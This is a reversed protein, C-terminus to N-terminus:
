IWSLSGVAPGEVQWEVIQAFLSTSLSSRRPFPWTEQLVDVPLACEIKQPEDLAQRRNSDRSCGCSIAAHTSVLCASADEHAFPRYVVQLCAADARTLM